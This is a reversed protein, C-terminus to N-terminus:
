DGETVAEERLRAGKTRKASMEGARPPIEGLPPLRKKNTVTNRFVVYFTIANTVAVNM